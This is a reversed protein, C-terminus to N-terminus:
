KINKNKENNGRCKKCLKEKIEIYQFMKCGLCMKYEQKDM